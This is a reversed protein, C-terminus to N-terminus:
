KLLLTASRPVMSEGKHTPTREFIQRTSHLHRYTTEIPYTQSEFRHQPQPEVLARPPSLRPTLLRTPHYVVLKQPLLHQVVQTSPVPDRGGCGEVELLDKRRSLAPVSSPSPTTSNEVDHRAVLIM